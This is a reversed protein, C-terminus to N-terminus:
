LIEYRWSDFGSRQIQLWSSQGRDIVLFLLPLFKLLPLTTGTSLYAGRCSSSHPLPPISSGIKIEASSPPSRDANLGPQKLGRGLFPGCMGVPCATQVSHLVSVNTEAQFRVGAAWYAARRQVSRGDRSRAEFV